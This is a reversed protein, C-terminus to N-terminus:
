FIIFFNNMMGKQVYLTRSHPETCHTFDSRELQIFVEILAGKKYASIKDGISM